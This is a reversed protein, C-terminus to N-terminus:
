AWGRSPALDLDGRNSVNNSTNPSPLERRYVGAKETTSLTYAKEYTKETSSQLTLMAMAMGLVLSITVFVIVGVMGILALLDGIRRQAVPKISRKM